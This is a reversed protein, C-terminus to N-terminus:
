KEATAECRLKSHHFWLPGARGIHTPEGAESLGCLRKLIRPPRQGEEGGRRRVEITYTDAMFGPRFRISIDAAQAGLYEALDLLLEGGTEISEPDAVGRVMIKFNPFSLECASVTTAGLGPVMVKIEEGAEKQEFLAKEDWEITAIDAASFCIYRVEEKRAGRHELPMRKADHARDVVAITNEPYADKIAALHRGLADYSVPVAWGFNWSSEATVKQLCYFGATEMEKQWAEVQTADLTLTATWEYWGALRVGGLQSKAVSIKASDLGFSPLKDCVEALALRTKSLGGYYNKSQLILEKKSSGAFFGLVTGQKTASAQALDEALRRRDEQVAKQRKLELANQTSTPNTTLAADREAQSAVQTNTTDAM